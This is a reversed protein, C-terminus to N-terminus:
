LFLGNRFYFGRSQHVRSISRQKSLLSTDTYHIDFFFSKISARKLTPFSRCSRSLWTDQEIQKSNRHVGLIRSHKWANQKCHRFLAAASDDRQHRLIRIDLRCTSGGFEYWLGLSSEIRTGATEQAHLRRSSRSAMLSARFM